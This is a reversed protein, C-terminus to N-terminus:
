MVCDLFHSPLTKKIMLKNSHEDISSKTKRTKKEKVVSVKDIVTKVTEM